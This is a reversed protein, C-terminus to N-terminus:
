QSTQAVPRANYPIVNNYWNVQQSPTQFIIPNEKKKLPYLLTIYTNPCIQGPAGFFYYVYGMKPRSHFGSVGNISELHWGVRLLTTVSM